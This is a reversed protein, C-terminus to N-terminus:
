DRYRFYTCRTIQGVFSGLIKALRIWPNLLLAEKPDIPPANLANVIAGKKLYNIIQEAIQFSVKEQAETTSAGLHPTCIVNKLGFLPNSTAPEELFVDFAAASLHNQKSLKLLRM